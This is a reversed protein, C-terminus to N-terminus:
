LSWLLRFDFLSNFFWVQVLNAAVTLHKTSTLSNFITMILILRISMRRVEMMLTMKKMIIMSQFTAVAIIRVVTIILVFNNKYIYFLSTNHPCITTLKPQLCPVWKNTLENIWYSPFPHPLPFTHNTWCAKLKVINSVILIMHLM